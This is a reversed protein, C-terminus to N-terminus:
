EVTSKANKSKPEEIEITVESDALEQAAVAEVLQGLIANPLLRIEKETLPATKDEPHKEHYARNLIVAERIRATTTSVSPNAIIFDDFECHAGVSYFFKVDRGNIIM